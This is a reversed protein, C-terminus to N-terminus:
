LWMVSGSIGVFLSLDDGGRARTCFLSVFCLLQVGRYSNSLAQPCHASPSSYTTTSQLHCLEGQRKGKKEKQVLGTTRSGERRRWRRLWRWLWLWGGALGGGRQLLTQNVSGIVNKIPRDSALRSPM